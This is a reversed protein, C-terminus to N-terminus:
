VAALQLMSPLAPESTNGLFRVHRVASTVVFVRLNNVRPDAPTVFFGQGDPRYTLTTGTLVENDFFTVEIRRGHTAEDFSRDEVYSSDGKFDRVFFVAKLGAVPVVVSDHDPANIASWITFHARTPHFDHSFGKVLRGDKYRVVIRQWASPGSRTDADISIDVLSCLHMSAQLLRSQWDSLSTGAPVQVNLVCAVDTPHDPRFFLTDGDDRASSLPANTLRIDLDPLAARLRSEITGLVV